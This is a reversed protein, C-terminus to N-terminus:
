CPLFAFFVSFVSLWFADTPILRNIDFGVVALVCVCLSLSVRWRWLLFSLLFSGSSVVPSSLVRASQGCVCVSVCFAWWQQLSPEDPLHQSSASLHAANRTEVLSDDLGREVATIEAHQERYLEFLPSAYYRYYVVCTSAVGAAFGSIKVQLMGRDPYSVRRERKREERTKLQQNRKKVNTKNTTTRALSATYAECQTNVFFPISVYLLLFTYLRLSLFFSPIKFETLGLSLKEHQERERERDRQHPTLIAQM